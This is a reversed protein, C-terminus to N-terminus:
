YLGHKKIRDRLTNRSIGLLEAAKVQNSKLKKLTLSILAKELSDTLRDHIKGRHATRLEDFLPTILDSFMRTFSDEIEAEPSPKGEKEQNIPFYEPLLVDGKALIVATQLNNELERVNGPWPYDQLIEMAQPSIGRIQRNFQSSFKNLFHHALLPIDGRRERLPSLFISAMKLRYFLDVRFSGEKVCKVLSKNTASIVRVDVKIGRNGGLRYFEHGELVRLVKSQIAPSMDAIEDLFIIGGNAQELKGERREVAGTFAGKEYGFLESELLTEPISACNVALFPREKRPSNNYIARAVLEKGTGSEGQILVSVDSSAVQGILKYIELMEPSEGILPEEDELDLKPLRVIRGRREPKLAEEVAEKLSLPATSITLYDYAGERMAEIALSTSVKESVVIIPTQPHVQLCGRMAEKFGPRCTSSDLLILDAKEVDKLGEWSPLNFIQYGEGLLNALRNGGEIVAISKM